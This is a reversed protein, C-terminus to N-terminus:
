PAGGSPAGPAGPPPAQPAPRLANDIAAQLQAPTLAAAAKGKLKVKGGPGEIEIEIADNRAFWSKLVDVLVAAGGSSVASVLMTAAAAALGRAGPLAEAEEMAAPAVHRDIDSLLARAVAPDPAGSADAVTIRLGTM